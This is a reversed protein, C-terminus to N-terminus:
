LNALNNCTMAVKPNYADPHKEALARRLKLAELYLAEAEAFHNTDSYLIALQNLLKLRDDEKACYTENKQLEEALRIAKEYQHQNYLYSIYDYVVGLRVGYKKAVPVIKGYRSEIEAFRGRDDYMAMLIDIATKHEKIYTQVRAQQMQEMRRMDAEFADDIEGADLIALAGEYDGQEFLRYAEKQRPTVEGHVEDTSMNLSMQFIASQLDRIADLLNQRRSAIESYERYFADDQKEAHYRPKMQFYKAEVEALEEQLKQLTKSNCFEAVNKLPLMKEGGVVCYGDKAQVEVFGLEQVRLNLLIRLKVTDISTFSEHYHGIAQELTQVFRQLSDEMTEGDSLAKFYTYIKPKQEGSQQMQARAIEFEEQTFEGLRTYFLFFVMDSGRLEKDFADQMRGDPTLAHDYNECIFPVVDVDYDERFRRGMQEIFNALEFREIGFQTISSALFIKITKM